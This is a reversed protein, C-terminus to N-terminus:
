PQGWYDTDARDSGNDPQFYSCGCRTMVHPDHGPQECVTCVLCPRISHVSHREASHGCVCTPVTVIQTATISVLQGHEDYERDIQM